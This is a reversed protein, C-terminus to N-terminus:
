EPIRQMGIPSRKRCDAWLSLLDLLFFRMSVLIELDFVQLNMAERLGPQRDIADQITSELDVKGRVTQKTDVKNKPQFGFGKHTNIVSGPTPKTRKAQFEMLRRSWKQTHFSKVLFGYFIMLLCFNLILFVRTQHAM